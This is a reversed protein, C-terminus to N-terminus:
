APYLVKSPDIGILNNKLINTLMKGKHEDTYIKRPLIALMLFINLFRYRTWFFEVNKKKTTTTSQSFITRISLPIELCSGPALCFAFTLMNGLTNFSDSSLELIEKFM